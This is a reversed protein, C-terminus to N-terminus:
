FLSSKSAAILEESESLLSKSDRFTNELIQEVVVECFCVKVESLKDNLEDSPLKVDWESWSYWDFQREEVLDLPNPPETLILVLEESMSSIRENKSLFQWEIYGSPDEGKKNGWSWGSVVM